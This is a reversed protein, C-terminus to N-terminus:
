KIRNDAFLMPIQSAAESKGARRKNIPPVAETGDWEKKTL